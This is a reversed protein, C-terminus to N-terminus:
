FHLSLSHGRSLRGTGWLSVWRPHPDQVRTGMGYRCGGGLWGVSRSGIGVGGRWNRWKDGGERSLRVEKPVGVKLWACQVKKTRLFM